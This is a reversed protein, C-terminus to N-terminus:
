ALVTAAPVQIQQKKRGIIISGVIIVPALFAFISFLTMQGFIMAANAAICCTAVGAGGGVAKIKLWSEIARIGVVIMFYGVIIGNVYIDYLITFHMLGMERVPDAVFYAFIGLVILLSLMFLVKRTRESFSSFPFKLMYVSGLFVALSGINSYIMNHTKMELGMFLMALAQYILFAFLAGILENKEQRFPKWIIAACILYFVGSGFMVAIEFPLGFIMPGMMEHTM